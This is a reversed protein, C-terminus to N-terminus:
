YRSPPMGAPDPEVEAPDDLVVVRLGIDRDDIGFFAGIFAIGIPEVQHRLDDRRAVARLDFALAFDVLEVCAALADEGDLLFPV